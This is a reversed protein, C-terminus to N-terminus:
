EDPQDPSDFAAPAEGGITPAEPPLVNYNEINFTDGGTPAVGLQAVAQDREQEALERAAVALAANAHAAVVIRYPALLLAGFLIAPRVWPPVPVHLSDAIYSAGALVVAGILIGMGTVVVHWLYDVFHSIRHFVVHGDYQTRRM